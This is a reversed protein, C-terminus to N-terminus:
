NLPNEPSPASDAPIANFAKTLAKTLGQPLMRWDEVMKPGGLLVLVQQIGARLYVVRQLMYSLQDEVGEAPSTPWPITHQPRREILYHRKWFVEGSPASVRVTFVIGEGMGDPPLNAVPPKWTEDPYYAALVLPVAWEKRSPVPGSRHCSLLQAMRDMAGVLEAIWLVTYAPPGPMVPLTFSEPFIGPGRLHAANHIDMTVHAVPSGCLRAWREELESHEKEM